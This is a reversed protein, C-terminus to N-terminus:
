RAAKAQARQRLRWILAGALVPLGILAAIGVVTTWDFGATAPAAARTPDFSWEFSDTYGTYNAQKGDPGTAITAYTAELDTLLQLKVRAQTVPGSCTFVVTAGTTAMDHIDTVKAACSGQADSVQMQRLLYESLAPSDNLLEADTPSPNIAGDLMVRDAPLLGLDYALWSLDDPAGSKWNVQVQDSAALSLVVQQPPGLPHASAAAVPGLLTVMATIVAAPILRTATRRARSAADSHALQRLHHVVGALATSRTIM